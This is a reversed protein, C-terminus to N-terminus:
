ISQSVYPWRGLDAGTGISPQLNWNICRTRVRQPISQLSNLPSCDIEPIQEM